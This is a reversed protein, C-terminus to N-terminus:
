GGTATGSAVPAGSCMFSTYLFVTSNAEASGNITPTNDTGSPSAPSTSSLVPPAATSDETYALTACPSALGAADTAQAYLVSTSDTPLTMIPISFATTASTGSGFVTGSCAGVYVKVTTGAEATLTLTPTNSSSPSGPTTALGTPAVPATSDETYSFRSSCGSTNGAVDTATAFIDTTTDSAVSAVVAFSGTAANSTGSGIVTGTCAGDAYLRITASEDNITGSISPTNSSSPSAPSAATLTPVDPPTSDETYNFATTTCASANGAGDTARAFIPTVVNDSVSITIAFFGGTAVRSGAATTCASSTYLTVTVDADATGNVTPSNSNSPSGPSTSTISPVGPAISDHVYAIATSCASVNGAADTARATLLTTANTSVTIADVSFLNPATASATSSGVSAGGCSASRYVNVTAGGEASGSVTISTQTSPSVPSTALGTPAAPAIIDHRYTTSTASCNSINGAADTATAYFTTTSNATVTTPIAFSGGTAPGSALSTVCTASAYIHVTAGAEATGTVAPTTTANSPSAPSTGTVVPLTPKTSDEVYTFAAGTCASANGAADVARAYLTTATNDGVSIAIGFATGSASGSYAITTCAASTYLNVTTGADTTGTITPTNSSSPSGPTSGTVVPVAPAISDHTYALSISCGSANGAADVARVSVTTVANSAAAFSVTFTGAAAVTTSSQVAGACTASFYLNITSGSDGAGALLVSTQNSPSTPSTALGTPTAPAVSDHVYTTSTPSCASANGATDIARAFFTTSSNATVATAIAFSGGTAVGNAVSTTCANSTYLHVTVGAEATGIVSPTTSANSPSAPSTGTVVPIGPAASDEVYIVGASCASANGAADTAKVHFTT